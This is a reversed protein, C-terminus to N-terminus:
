VSGEYESNEEMDEPEENVEDLVKEKSELVKYFNNKLRWINIPM